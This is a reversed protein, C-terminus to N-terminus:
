HAGDTEPSFHQVAFAIAAAIDDDSTEWAAQIVPGWAHCSRAAFEKAEPTDEWTACDFSVGNLFMDLAILTLDWGGGIGITGGPGYTNVLQDVIEAPSAHELEFITRGDDSPTLRVEVETPMGEGLVWTVKILHPQECRLIEGGANNKLQFRGGVRLDGEIPGLWRSLREPDTCASWVDEIPAGYTRRLLLSRGAGTAVAQNGIERHTANIQNIIDIM